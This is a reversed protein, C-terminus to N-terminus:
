LKIVADCRAIDEARHSVVVVAPATEDRHSAGRTGASVEDMLATASPADLHATPEDLLLLPSRVLLTRAIALRQRQGGSLYGGSAGVQTALGEPLSAVFEGLGVRTLARRMEAETPAEDKSRALALNGAITSEFIHAEQPCWAAYGRLDASFAPTGNIRIAGSEVPLFGLLTALATTKGAGSEGTIGLWQGSQVRGSVNEFVPQHMGQWRTSIQDIELDVPGSAPLEATAPSELLESASYTAGTAKLAAVTTAFGRWGRAAEVHANSVEIMATCMLIVIAAIPTRLEGARVPEWVLATVAVASGWWIATNLAAGLGSALAGRGALTSARADLEAQTKVATSSLANAKLDTAALIASVGFRLMRATTQREASEARADATVVVWPVLLTSCVAAVAVVWWVGPTLVATTTVALVMVVVQTAVPLLVRPAADRLEDADTILSDIVKEGRLLSRASLAVTSLARWTKSRVNVSADLVLRHTVLRELYRWTARGIGFFRVGVVALTLYMMAPQEAARVILWGSLATLAIGFIATLVSLLVSLAARGTHLEALSLFDRLSQRMSFRQASDPSPSKDAKIPTQEAVSNKRDALMFAPEEARNRVGQNETFMWQASSVANLCGDARQALNEDHTVMILCVQPQALHSLAADMLLAAEADLHATPEDVLVTAPQGGAANLRALARAIALRRQQGMSLSEPALHAVDTLGVADLFQTFPRYDLDADDLLADAGAGGYLAVEGIATSAVFRPNQPVWVIEGVGTITGTVQVPHHSGTSVLGDPLLGAIAALITSKGCGSEGTVSLTSGRSVKFNVPGISASRGPYRVTLDSITLASGPAGSIKQKDAESSAVPLPADIIEQASRLAAIGDESQHYASGVDRLPQYCEPALLLIMLAVDLGMEGRVLRLGIFVAVIAVSITTILELALSSMFASRLTQMTKDRYRVGLDTLAKRQAEARGLGILVPLGKALEVIHDSLRHLDRQADATDRKTTKGILVMFLPILPLTLAIILASLRDYVLVVLWVTVPIVATSVVATLTKTYYSDLAGLGRALLVGTAGAGAPTDRGGTILIRELLQSRLTAKAGVAARAAFATTAWDVLARMLVAVIGIALLIGPTTLNEAGPVIGSIQAQGFGAFEAQQREYETAYTTGEFFHSYTFRALHAVATGLAGAFIVTAAVKVCAIVGLIPLNRRAAPGLPPRNSM